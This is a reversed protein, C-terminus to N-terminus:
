TYKIASMTAVKRRDKNRRGFHKSIRKLGEQWKLQYLAVRDKKYSMCYPIAAYFALYVHFVSPIGPETSDTTTASTATFLVATRVFDVKLGATLTVNSSTPSPYLRFSDGLIDYHTPLGKVPNGSGDTGFYEEITLGSNKLDTQDIQKLPQWKGNSDKVKMGKISLYEGAFSYLEQGEVLNGTGVPMDSQNTDDWEWAGDITIIEGVIEELGQNIRATKDLRPYSTDSTDCLRDVEQCIGQKTTANYFIM